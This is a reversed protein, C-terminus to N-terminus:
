GLSVMNFPEEYSLPLPEALLLPGSPVHSLGFHVNLEMSRLNIEPHYSYLCVFKKHKEIYMLNKVLVM